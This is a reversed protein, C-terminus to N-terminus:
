SVACTAHTYAWAKFRAANRQTHIWGILFSRLPQETPADLWTQAVDDIQTSLHVFTRDGEFVPGRPGPLGTVDLSLGNVLYELLRERNIQRQFAAIQAAAHLTLLEAAAELDIDGEARLRDFVEVTAGYVECKYARLQNTLQVHELSLTHM